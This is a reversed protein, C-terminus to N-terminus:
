GSVAPASAAAMPIHSSTSISIPRGSPTVGCWGARTSGDVSSVQPATRANIGHSCVRKASSAPTNPIAAASRRRVDRSAHVPRRSSKAM